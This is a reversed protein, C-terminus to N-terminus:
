ILVPTPHNKEQKSATCLPVSMYVLLKLYTYSQIVKLSLKTPEPGSYRRLIYIYAAWEFSELFLWEYNCSIICQYFPYKNISYKIGTLVGGGMWLRCLPGKICKRHKQLQMSNNKNNNAGNLTQVQHFPMIDHIFM